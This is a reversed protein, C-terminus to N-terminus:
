ANKKGFVVSYEGDARNFNETNGVDVWYDRIPFAATPTKAGLLTEFLETMDFKRDRPVHVIVSPDLVYVGANVFSVTVPKEEIGVIRGDDLHIVGYPIQTGYERVGMTAVAGRGVHFEMLEDFDIKALVDANMVFFPKDMMQPLIGLAGATGLPEREEVYTINVGFNSGDGFYDRVMAAKYNVALFINAYGQEAFSSIITELIPRNGVKLLPKPCTETLPLLRKGYGGAMLVVWNDKAKLSILKDLSEVKVVSGSADVVPIYHLLKARMISLIKTRTDRDGVTVPHVNMVKVVSESPLVGKLLGRRIDGDTVVGLLKRDADVVVAICVGTRNIIQMAELITASASVFNESFESM